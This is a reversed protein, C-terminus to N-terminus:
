RWKEVSASLCSVEFLGSEMSVTFTSGPCGALALFIEHQMEVRRAGRANSCACFNFIYTEYGVGRSLILGRPARRRGRPIDKRAHTRIHAYTHTRTHTHANM